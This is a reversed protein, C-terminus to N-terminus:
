LNRMRHPAAVLSENSVEDQNKSQRMVVFRSGRQEHSWGLDIVSCGMGTRKKLRDVTASGSGM